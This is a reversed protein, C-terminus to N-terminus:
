AQPLDSYLRIHKTQRWSSQRDLTKRETWELENKCMGWKLGENPLLIVLIIKCREKSLDGLRAIHVETNWRSSVPLQRKSITNPSPSSSLEKLQSRNVQTQGCCSQRPPQDKSLFVRDILRLDAASNFLFRLPFDFFCTSRLVLFLTCSSGGAPEEAQETLLWVLFYM